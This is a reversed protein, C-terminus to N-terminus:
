ARELKVKIIYSNCHTDDTVKEPDVYHKKSLLICKVQMAYTSDQLVQSPPQTFYLPRTLFMRRCLQM